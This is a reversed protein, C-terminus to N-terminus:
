GVLGDEIKDVSPTLSADAVIVFEPGVVFEILGQIEKMRRFEVSQRSSCEVPPNNDCFGM